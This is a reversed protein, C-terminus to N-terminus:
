SAEAAEIELIAAQAGIAKDVVDVAKGLQPTWKDTINKSFTQIKGNAKEMDIVSYKEDGNEVFSWYAKVVKEGSIKRAVLVGGVVGVVGVGVLIKAKHEDYLKKFKEKM